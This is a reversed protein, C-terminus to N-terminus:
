GIIYKGFKPIKGIIICIISSVTFTIVATLLIEVPTTWIGIRGEDGLGFCEQLWGSVFALILMHCLYVGYSAKALPIGLKEYAVGAKNLKKYLIIWGVAMLAVGTSDYMWPTEWIAAMGVPGGVPFGNTASLSVISYFGVLCISFGIIWPMIGFLFTKKWSLEGVFRRIYLGFLIYGIFGSFYYFVGYSNWSCEGWLPYKAFNPIGSPGYVVSVDGSMAWRVFPILTTFLCIALYIKLEKKSVREAWPSLIPIILYIGVLMYVFWLHGAAYNFNLLLDKCNQIPEGWVIAYVVTWLAFPVLVRVARRRFFELTNYHLPFQLYSSAVIFLPVCARALSDFLSVWFLDNQTAIYSGEGGLYFPETSHVLLVLFIATVRLRDVWVYRAKLYNEM